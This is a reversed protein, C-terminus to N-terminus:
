LKYIFIIVHKTLQPLTFYFDISLQLYFISEMGILHSILNIFNNHLKKLYYKLLKKDIHRDVCIKM